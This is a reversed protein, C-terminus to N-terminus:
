RSAPLGHRDRPAREDGLALQMHVVDIWRGFKFGLAPHTGIMRFGLKEHFRISRENASDGIVAIMQRFGLRTCEDILERMLASAVGERLHDHAVYVSNELTYRYASRTRYLSAYAYGLLREGDVAVRWPLGASRIQAMRRGVEAADPPEEEFTAPSTRVYHAYLAAIAEEDAPAADRLNM